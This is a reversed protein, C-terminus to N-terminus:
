DRRVSGMSDLLPKVLYSLISRPVTEIYVEAPMGPVLKHEAGLKGVETAPVEIEAKFFPNDDKDTLEAAAVRRVEGELRPMAHSDFAM